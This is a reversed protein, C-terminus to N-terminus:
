FLLWKCGSAAVQGWCGSAAVQLWKLLWKCGSARSCIAALPQLHSCTAAPPLHSCTAALPQLHSCTAALPQLHSCTAALPQQSGGTSPCRLIRLMRWHFAGSFQSCEGTSFVPSNEVNEPPRCRLITFM